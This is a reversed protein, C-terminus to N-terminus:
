LHLSACGRSDMFPEDCCWKIENCGIHHSPMTKKSEKAWFKDQTTSTQDGYDSRQISRQLPGSTLLYCTKNPNYLQTDGTRNHKELECWCVCSKNIVNARLEPPPHPVNHGQNAKDLSKEGSRLELTIHAIPTNISHIDIVTWTSFQPQEKQSMIYPRSVLLWSLTCGSTQIETFCM